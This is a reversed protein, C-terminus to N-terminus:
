QGTLDISKQPLAPTKQFERERVRQACRVSVEGAGGHEAWRRGDMEGNIATEQCAGPERRM